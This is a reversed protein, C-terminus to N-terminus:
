LHRPGPQLEGQPSALDLQVLTEGFLLRRQAPSLGPEMTALRYLGEAEPPESTRVQHEAKAWAASIAAPQNNGLAEGLDHRIAEREPALAALSASYAQAIADIKAQLAQRISSPGYHGRLDRLGCTLGGEDDFSFHVVVSGEEPITKEIQGSAQEELAIIKRSLAVIRIQIAEPVPGSSASLKLTRPAPPTISRRIDEALKELQDLRAAQSTALGRIAATRIFGTFARDEHLIKDYLEKKLAAQLTQFEVLKAAVDSALDALPVVRAPAPLFFPEVSVTAATAGSHQRSSPGLANVEWAVEILLGRQAPLLGDQFYAAARMVQSVEFPTDGRAPGETDHGIAWERAHNWNYDGRALDSRLHEAEEELSTLAPAQKRALRDLAALRDARPLNRTRDLEDHLEKLLAFREAAYRDLAARNKRSVEEYLVRSALQPYFWDGLWANMEAPASALRSPSDGTAANRGVPRFSGTFSRPATGRFALEEPPHVVPTDLPPPLPPFFTALRRMGESSGPAVGGHPGAGLEDFQARLPSLALLVVSLLALRAPRGVSAFRPTLRTESM